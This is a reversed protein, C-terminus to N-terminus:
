NLLVIVFLKNEMSILKPRCDM